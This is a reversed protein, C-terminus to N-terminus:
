QAERMYYTRYDTGGDDFIEYGKSRLYHITSALHRCGFLRDALLDTLRGGERVFKLVHAANRNRALPKGLKLVGYRYSVPDTQLTEIPEGMARLKSIRAQFRAAGCIEIARMKTLTGGAKLYALLYDSQTTGKM